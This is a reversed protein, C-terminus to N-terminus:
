ARTVVRAARVRARAPLRMLLGNYSRRFRRLEMETPSRQFTRVFEGAYFDDDDPHAPHASM